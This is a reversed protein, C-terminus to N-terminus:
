LDAAIKLSRSPSRVMDNQPIIIMKVPKIRPPDPWQPLQRQSQRAASLLRQTAWSRPARTISRLRIIEAGNVYDIETGILSEAKKWVKLQPGRARVM